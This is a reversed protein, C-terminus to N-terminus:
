LETQSRLLPWELACHYVRCRVIVTETYAPFLNDNISCCEDACAIIHDVEFLQVLHPYCVFFFGFKYHIGCSVLQM